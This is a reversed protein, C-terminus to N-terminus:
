NAPVTIVPAQPAIGTEALSLLVLIFTFMSKSLLDQDDIWFWHDRYRVTAYGKEPRAAGSRVRVLPEGWPAAQAPLSPPPLARGEQLDAAPVEITSAIEVFIEAMSRTLMAVQAGQRPISGFTLGLESAGQPLRLIDRITQQDHAVDDGVDGRFILIVAEDGTRKEVRLDIAESRQVRRLAELLRYFAPDAERERSSSTSRNFVGNIGRTTLQLVRDVPYGAQILAMVSAPTMPRLLFRAFREGSIPTFTITPKDTYRGYGGLAQNNGPYFSWSAGLNVQSEVSTSSIISTVELYVPLDLYRLKVINLLTQEKSTSALVDVYDARDRSVSYPGISSCGSLATAMMALCGIGRWRLPPVPSTKALLAVMPPILQKMALM